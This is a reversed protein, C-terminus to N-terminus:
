QSDPSLGFLFVAIATLPEAGGAAGKGSSQGATSQSSAPALNCATLSVGYLHLRQGSLLHAPDARTERKDISVSGGSAHDATHQVRIYM